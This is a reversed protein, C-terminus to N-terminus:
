HTGGERATPPDETSTSASINAPLAINYTTLLTEL